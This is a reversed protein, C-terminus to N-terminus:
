IREQLDPGLRGRWRKQNRLRAMAPLHMGGTTVAGAIFCHLQQPERLLLCAVGVSQSIRSAL